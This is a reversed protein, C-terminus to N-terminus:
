FGSLMLDRITEAAETHAGYDAINQCIEGHIFWLSQGIMVAPFSKKWLPGGLNSTGSFWDYIM